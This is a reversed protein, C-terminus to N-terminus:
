NIGLLSWATSANPTEDTIQIAYASVTLSQEGMSAIQMRTLSQEVNILDNAFVNFTIGEEAEVKTEQLRFYVDEVGAVQYWGDALTFWMYTDFGASKEIKVFVYSPVSNQELTVTPPNALTIDGGPVVVNSNDGAIGLYIQPNHVVATVSASSSTSYGAYIGSLVTTTMVTILLLSLFATMFKKNSSKM